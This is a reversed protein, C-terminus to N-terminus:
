SALSTAASGDNGGRQEVRTLGGAETKTRSSNRWAKSPPLEAQLLSGSNATEEKQAQLLRVGRTWEIRMYGDSDRGGKVRSGKGQL